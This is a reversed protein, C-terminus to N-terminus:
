KADGDKDISTVILIIIIIILVVFASALPLNTIILENILNGILFIDNNLINKIYFLSTSLITLFILSYYFVKETYPWVVKKFVILRSNKISKISLLLDQPIKYIALIIIILSIPLITYLISLILSILANNVLNNILFVIYGGNILLYNLIILLIINQFLKSKYCILMGFLYSILLSLLSILLSITISKIIIKIYSASIISLYSLFSFRPIFGIVTNQCLSVYLLSIALLVIFSFYIYTSGITIIKYLRKKM